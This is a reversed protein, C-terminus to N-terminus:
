LFQVSDNSGLHVNPVYINLLTKQIGLGFPEIGLTRMRLARSRPGHLGM